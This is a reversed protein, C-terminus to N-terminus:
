QTERRFWSRPKRSKSPLPPPVRHMMDNLWPFRDPWDSVVHLLDEYVRGDTCIHRLHDEIEPLLDSQGYAGAVDLAAKVPGAADRYTASTVQGRLLARVVTAPDTLQDVVWLTFRFFDAECQRREKPDSLDYYFDREGAMFRQGVQLVAEAGDRGLRRSAGGFYIGIGYKPGAFMREDYVLLPLVDRSLRWSGGDETFGRVRLAKTMEATFVKM